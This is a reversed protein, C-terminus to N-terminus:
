KQYVFFTFFFLTLSLTPKVNWTEITIRKTRNAVIADYMDTFSNPYRYRGKWFPITVSKLYYKRGGFINLTCKCCKFFPTAIVIAHQLISPSHNLTGMIGDLSSFCWVGSHANHVTCHIATYNEFSPSCLFRFWFHIAVHHLVNLCLVWREVVINWQQNTNNAYSVWECQVCCAICQRACM